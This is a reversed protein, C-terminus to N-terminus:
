RSKIINGSGRFENRMAQHIQLKEEESLKGANMAVNRVEEIERFAKEIRENCLRRFHDIDPMSPLKQTKIFLCSREMEESRRKIEQQQPPAIGGPPPNRLKFRQAKCEFEVLELSSTVFDRNYKSELSTTKVHEIHSRLSDIIYDAFRMWYNKYPLKISTEPPDDISLSRNLPLEPIILSVEHFM